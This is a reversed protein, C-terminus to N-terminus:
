FKVKIATFSHFDVLILFQEYENNIINKYDRDKPLGFSMFQSYGILKSITLHCHGGNKKMNQAIVFKLYNIEQILYLIYSYIIITIKWCHHLNLLFPM